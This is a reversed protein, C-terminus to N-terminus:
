FLFCLIATAALGPGSLPLIIRTFGQWLTAGDMWAAGELSRRLRAYFPRIMWIVLSLNFTLYILILGTLTDLLELYRYALFYPITFAIPPAMRSSLILLSLPKQARMAM